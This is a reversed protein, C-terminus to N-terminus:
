IPTNCEGVCQFGSFHRKVREQEPGACSTSHCTESCCPDRLSSFDTLPTDSVMCFPFESTRTKGRYEAALVLGFTGRGLIEPPDNFKLEDPRVLWVADNKQVKRFLFVAIVGILALIGVLPVVIATALNISDDSDPLVVELFISSEQGSISFTFASDCSEINNRVILSLTADTQNVNGIKISIEATANADYLAVRLPYIEVELNTPSTLRPEVWVAGRLPTSGLTISYTAEYNNQMDLVLLQDSIMVRANDVDNRTAPPLGSIYGPITQEEDAYHDKECCVEFMGSGESSFLLCKNEANPLRADYTFVRCDKLISCIEACKQPSESGESLFESGPRLDMLITAEEFITFEIYRADTGPYHVAMDCFSFQISADVLTLNRGRNCCVNGFLDDSESIANIFSGSQEDNRDSLEVEVAHLRPLGNLAWYSLVKLNAPLYLSELSESVESLSDTGLISLSPNDRLDLSQPLWDTASFTKPVITLNRGRCDISRSEEHCVCLECFDGRKSDDNVWFVRVNRLDEANSKLRIDEPPLVAGVFCDRGNTAAYLCIPDQECVDRCRNGVFEIRRLNTKFVDVSLLPESISIGEYLPSICAGYDDVTCNLPGEFKPLYVAELNSFSLSGSAFEGFDLQSDLVLELDYGKIHSPDLRGNGPSGSWGTLWFSEGPNTSSKLPIFLLGPKSPDDDLISHFSYHKEAGDSDWFCGKECDSSDSLVLRFISRGPKSSPVNIQYEMILDTAGSLNFYANGPAFRKFQVFGGWTEVMEITYNVSFVGDELVVSTDNRSAESQFYVDEWYGQSVADNFSMSEPLYMSADGLLSGDGHCALQDLLFSGSLVGAGSTGGTSRSIVVKWGRISGLDLLVSDLGQDNPDLSVRVETWENNLTSSTLNRRIQHKVVSIPQLNEELSWNSLCGSDNLFVLEVNVADEASAQGTWEEHRVWFSLHTAGYCSHPPSDASLIWGFDVADDEALSSYEVRLAATGFLAEKSGGEENNPVPFTSTTTTTVTIHSSDVFSGELPPWEDWPEIVYSIGWTENFADSTTLMSLLLLISFILPMRGAMVQRVGFFAM